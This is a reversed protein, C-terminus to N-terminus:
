APESRVERIAAILDRCGERLDEKRAALPLWGAQAIRHRRANDRANSILDGHEQDSDYDITVRCDPLGVDVRAVFNGARDFVKMQPVVRGLEAGQLLQVLRTEPPSEPVALSGDWRSLVARVVQIGPRGRRAMRAFVDSTSEVTVLKKRLMAHLVMEIFTPSKYISALEILLREARMVPIGDIYVIDDPDIFKSEHVVLGSTKSRLWRPCTLEAIDDRGGPVEHMWAGSRHSAAANPAGAVCAARITVRPTVPAGPVVFVGPYLRRWLEAAAGRIEAETLEAAEADALCFVGDREVAQEYLTRFQARAM